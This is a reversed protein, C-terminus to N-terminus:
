ASLAKTREHEPTHNGNKGNFAPWSARLQALPLRVDYCTPVDWMQLVIEVPPLNERVATAVASSPTPFTKALRFDATWGGEGYYESTALNRLYRKM